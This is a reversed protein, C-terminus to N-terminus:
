AFVEAATSATLADDFWQDLRALDDCLPALDKGGPALGKGGPALDKGGPALDKGGPALDKPHLDEAVAWVGRFIATRVAYFFGFLGCGPVNV